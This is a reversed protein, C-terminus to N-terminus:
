RLDSCCRIGIYNVRTSRGAMWVHTCDSNTSFAFDDGRSSCADDRGGGDRSECSDEWEQVNGVMDYLGEYGGECTRTGVPVATRRDVNCKTADLTNGYPYQRTGARSCASMWESTSASVRGLPTLQGGGIRGCLRKGAWACYAWADCWDVDAVPMTEAGPNPWTGGPVFSTNWACVSPQGSTDSGRAALFAAYQGQSVETSDVCFTGAVVMTPGARGACTPARADGGDARAADVPTADADGAPSTGADLTADTLAADSGTPEGAEVEDGDGDGVGSPNGVIGRADTPGTEVYEDLGLMASCGALAILMTAAACGRVLRSTSLRM